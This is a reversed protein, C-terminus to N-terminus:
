KEEGHEIKLADLIKETEGLLLPRGTGKRAADARMTKAPSILIKMGGGRGRNNRMIGFYVSDSSIFIGLSFVCAIRGSGYAM